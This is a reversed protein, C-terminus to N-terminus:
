LAPGHGALTMVLEVARAIQRDRPRLGMIAIREGPLIELLPSGQMIASGNRRLGRLTGDLPSAVPRAGMWGLIAGRKVRAGIDLDTHFLGSEEAMVLGELSERSQPPAPGNHTVAGPDRDDTGIVLDVHKGACFGEGLGITLEALDRQDELDRVSPFRGDIIVDWPWKEVVEDFSVSLAPLVMRSQLAAVFQRQSSVLRSEVEELVALGDHWVDAYSMRRRLIEPPMSQHLAVIHGCLLLHRAIASPTEGLGRVLVSCGETM